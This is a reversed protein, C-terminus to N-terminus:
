GGYKVGHVIKAVEIADRSRAIVQYTWGRDDVSVPKEYDIGLYWIDLQDTPHRVQLVRQHLSVDTTITTETADTIQFYQADSSPIFRGPSDKLLPNTDCYWFAPNLHYPRDFSITRGSTSSLRHVLFHIVESYNTDYESMKLGYYFIKELILRRRKQREYQFYNDLLFQALQSETGTFIRIWTEPPPVRIFRLVVHLLTKEWIHFTWSDLSHDPEGDVIDLERDVPQRIAYAIKEFLSLGTM